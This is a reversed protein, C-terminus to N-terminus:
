PSAVGSFARRSATATMSRILRPRGGSGGASTGSGVTASIASRYMSDWTLILQLGFVITFRSLRMRILMTESNPVKKKRFQLPGHKRVADCAAHCVWAPSGSPSPAKSCTGGRLSRPCSAAPVPDIGSPAASGPSNGPANGTKRRICSVPPRVPHPLPPHNRCGTPWERSGGAASPIGCPRSGSGSIPRHPGPTPSAEGAPRFSRTAAHAAKPRTPGFDVFWDKFIAQAMADLTENMRRILEIKDDLTNLIHAIAKQEHMNSLAAIDLSEIMGKTLANRTGESGAWSLLKVQMKPVVLAYRLFSPDLRAPDPRFIVVHQNVRAPLIDCRVQCVRAVSDSTINLLVDDKAVEVNKTEFRSAASHVCSRRGSIWQQVCKPKSYARITWVTSLYGQRWPPQAM